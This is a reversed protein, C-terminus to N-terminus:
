LPLCKCQPRIPQSATYDPLYTSLNRLFESGGNDPLNVKKNVTKQPQSLYVKCTTPLKSIPTLFDFRIQHTLCAVRMPVSICVYLAKITLDPLTISLRCSRTTFPMIIILYVKFLYSLDVIIRLPNLPTLVCAM